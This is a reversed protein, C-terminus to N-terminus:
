SKTTRSLMQIEVRHNQFTNLLILKDLIEKYFLTICVLCHRLSVRYHEHSHMFMGALIQALEGALSLM